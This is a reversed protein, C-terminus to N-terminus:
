GIGALERVHSVERSTLSRVCSSEATHVGITQGDGSFFELEYAVAGPYIHVVVGCDGAVFPTKPLDRTLVVEDHEEIM